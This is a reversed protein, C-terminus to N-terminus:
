STKLKKTESLLEQEPIPETTTISPNLVQKQPELLPNISQEAVIPLSTVKTKSEKNINHM